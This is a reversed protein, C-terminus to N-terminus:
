KEKLAEVLGGLSALETPIVIKTAQGNALDKISKLTELQVFREDPGAEKVQQIGYVEAEYLARRAAAEAEAELIRTQKAAEARLIQAEKAGEAVRIQSEKEGEAILIKERKEREARMQKEMANRIDEPPLINKLEIRSIKIGWPDTAEDVIIRMESNIRDRSTLTEDLELDGIINRLTTATMNETAEIPRNVGYTYLRSDMVKLYVVSDIMMTVNDKTIVPQPQFDYVQEKLSVKKRVVELIPIMFHLGSEMTRNYKGLREIVYEKSQPVIRITSALVAICLILLPLYTLYKPM